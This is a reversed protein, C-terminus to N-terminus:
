LLFEDLKLSVECRLLHVRQVRTRFHMGAELTNPVSWEPPTVIKVIGTQEGISRISEIYKLPDRWEELTPHFEPAPQM